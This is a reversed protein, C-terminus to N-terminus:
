VITIGGAESFDVCDHIQNFLPRMPQQTYWAKRINELNKKLDVATIIGCLLFLHDLMGRATIDSFGVM